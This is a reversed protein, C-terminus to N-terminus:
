SSSSLPHGVRLPRAAARTWGFAVALAVGSGLLAGAAVDTPYHAGVVVRSLGVLAALPLVFPGLKPWRVTLAVALAFSSSTHGSPFSSGYPAHGVLHGVPRPREILHKLVQDAATAAVEAVLVYGFGPLRRMRTVIEALATWLPIFYVSGVYSLAVGIWGLIPPAGDNILHFLRHDLARLTEV